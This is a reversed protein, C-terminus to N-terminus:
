NASDIMLNRLFAKAHETMHMSWASTLWKDVGHVDWLHKSNTGNNSKLPIYYFDSEVSMQILLQVYSM